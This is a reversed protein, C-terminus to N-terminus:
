AAVCHLSPSDLAHAFPKAYSQQCGSSDHHHGGGGQGIKLGVYSRLIFRDPAVDLIAPADGLVGVLGEALVGQDESRIAVSEINDHSARGCQQTVDFAHGL